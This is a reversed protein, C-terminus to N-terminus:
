ALRRLRDKGRERKLSDNAICQAIAAFDYRRLCAGFRQSLAWGDDAHELVRHNGRGNVVIWEVHHILFATASVVPANRYLLAEREGANSTMTAAHRVRVCCARDGLDVPSGKIDDGLRLSGKNM